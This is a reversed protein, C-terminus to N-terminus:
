RIGGEDNDMSKETVTVLTAGGDVQALTIEVLLEEDDIMWYYSIYRHPEMKGIRITFEEEFEPFRWRVREGEIMRGSSESIFYKSMKEPDVIAEFVANAPKQIQLAVKIELTQNDM